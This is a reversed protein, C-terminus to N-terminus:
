PTYTAAFEKLEAVDGETLKLHETDTGSANNFEYVVRVNGRCGENPAGPPAVDNIRLIETVMERLNNIQKDGVIWFCDGAGLSSTGLRSIETGPQEVIVGQPHYLDYVEQLEPTEDALKMGLLSVTKPPNKLVIAELKLNNTLDAGKVQIRTKLKQELALSHARITLNGDPLGQVL